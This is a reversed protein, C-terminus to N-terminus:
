MSLSKKDQRIPSTSSDGVLKNAVDVVAEKAREALSPSLTTETALIQNELASFGSFSDRLTSRVVAEVTDASKLTGGSSRSEINKDGAGFLGGTSKNSPTSENSKGFLGGKTEKENEDKGGLLNDQHRLNRRSASPQMTATQVLLLELKSFEQGAAISREIPKGM